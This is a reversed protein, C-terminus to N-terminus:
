ETDFSAIVLGGGRGMGGEGRRLMRELRRVVRLFGEEAERQDEFEVSSKARKM